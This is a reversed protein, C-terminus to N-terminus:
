LICYMCISTCQVKEQDARLSRQFEEEQEQRLRSDLDRQQRHMSFFYVFLCSLFLRNVLSKIIYLSGYCRMYMYAVSPCVAYRESRLVVLEPENRTM